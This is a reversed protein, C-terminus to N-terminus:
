SILKNESFVDKFKDQIFNTKNLIYLCHSGLKGDKHSVYKKKKKVQKETFFLRFM